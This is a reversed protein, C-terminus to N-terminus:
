LTPLSVVLHVIEKNKQRQEITMNALRETKRKERNAKSKEKRVDRKSLERTASEREEQGDTENKDGKGKFWTTKGLLKKRWRSGWSAESSEHLSKWRADSKKLKSRALRSEYGKLGGILVRRITVLKYGSNAMKQAYSDLVKVRESDPLLESVNMMRRMVEATLSSIRM